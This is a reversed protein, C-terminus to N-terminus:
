AKYTVYLFVVPTLISLARSCESGIWKPEVAQYFLDRKSPLLAFMELSHWDIFRCEKVNLWQRCGFDIKGWCGAAGHVLFVKHYQTDFCCLSLWDFGEEETSRELYKQFLKCLRRVIGAEYVQRIFLMDDPGSLRVTGACSPRM